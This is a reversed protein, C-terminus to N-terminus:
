TIALIGYENQPIVLVYHVYTYINELKAVYTFAPVLHQHLPYLLKSITSICLEVKNLCNSLYLKLINLCYSIYVAGIYEVLEM